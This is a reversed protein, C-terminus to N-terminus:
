FLLFLLLQAPTAFMYDSFNLSALSLLNHHTSLSVPPFTTILVHFHSSVSLYLSWFQPPSINHLFVKLLCSYRLVLLIFVPHASGLYPFPQFLLPHNCKFSCNLFYGAICVLRMSYLPASIHIEVVSNM